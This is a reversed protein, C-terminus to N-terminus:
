SFDRCCIRNPTVYSPGAYCVLENRFKNFYSSSKYLYVNVILNQLITQIACFIKGFTLFFIYM